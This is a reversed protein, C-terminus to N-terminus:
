LIRRIEYAIFNVLTLKKRKIINLFNLYDQRKELQELEKAVLRGYFINNLNAEKGSYSCVLM